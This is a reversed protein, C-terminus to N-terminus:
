QVSTREVLAAFQEAPLAPSFFFGQGADCQLDCLFDYQAQTEVGEAVV